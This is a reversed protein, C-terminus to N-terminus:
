AYTKEIDEFDNYRVKALTTAITCYDCSFEDFQTGKSQIIYVNGIDFNDRFVTGIMEQFVGEEKWM